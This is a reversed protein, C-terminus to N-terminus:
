HLGMGAYFAQWKADILSREFYNKARANGASGMQRCLMQDNLMRSIAATLATIDGVSVLLGSVGDEVIEELGPTRYAVVPVGAAMAEAAALGFGEWQSPMALMDFLPYIRALDDPALLGTWVVQRSIGAEEAFSELRNRDPGDGAVIVRIDPHSMALNKVATFLDKHGKMEVLRGVIGLVPSSAPVGLREKESARDLKLCSEQLYRVDVSDHIVSAKDSRRNGMWFRRANESVFVVKRAFSATLRFMWRNWIGYGASGATHVNLVAPIGALLGAFVAISSPNVFQVHVCDAKIERFLKLMGRIAKWRSIRGQHEAEILHWNVGCKIVREKMSQDFHGYVCVTVSHGASKLASSLAITMMETGGTIFYPITVVICAM